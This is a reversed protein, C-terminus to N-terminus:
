NGKKGLNILLLSYDVSNVVGDYNIDFKSNGSAIGNPTFLALDTVDISNDNNFDGLIFAAVNVVTNDTYKFGIKQLLSYKASFNLSYNNNKTLLNNTALVYTGGSNGVNTTQTLGTGEVMISVPMQGHLFSNPAFTIKIDNVGASPQQSPNTSPTTVSSSPPKPTSSPPKAALPPAAGVNVTVQQTISGGGGSCSLVYTKSSTLNGTSEAGGTNSKGGSWGNSATCNTVNTATWRLNTATNYSLNTNDATFSLTPAPTPVWCSDMWTQTLRLSNPQSPRSSRIAINTANISALTWAGGTAPNTTWTYQNTVYTNNPPLQWKLGPSFYLVGNIQLGVEIYPGTQSSQVQRARASITVNNITIPTTSTAAGHGLVLVSGAGPTDDWVYTTDEDSPSEDVKTYFGGGQDNAWFGTSVDSSPRFTYQGQGTACTAANSRNDRTNLTALQTFVVAGFLFVTIVLSLWTKKSFNIEKSLKPM